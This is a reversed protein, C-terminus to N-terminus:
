KLGSTNKTSAGAPDQLFAQWLTFQAQGAKTDAPIFLQKQASIAAFLANLEARAIKKM